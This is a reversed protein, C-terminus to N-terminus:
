CSRWNQFSLRIRKLNPICKRFLVAGASIINVKDDIAVSDCEWTKRNVKCKVPNKFIILNYVTSCLVFQNIIPLTSRTIAIQSSNKSIFACFHPVIKSSKM